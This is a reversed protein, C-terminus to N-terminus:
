SATLHCAKELYSRHGALDALRCFDLFYFSFLHCNKKKQPPHIFLPKSFLGYIFSLLYNWGQLSVLVLCRDHDSYCLCALCKKSLWTKVKLLYARWNIANMPNKASVHHQHSSASRRRSILLGIALPIVMEMYGAFHNRNIYPGFPLAYSADRVGYLKDPSAYNQSIGVIALIFGM